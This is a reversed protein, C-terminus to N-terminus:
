GFKSGNLFLRVALAMILLKKMGRCLTVMGPMGDSKRNLHGGLRGIALAVDRVTTIPRKFLRRLIELELPELGAEEANAEPMIRFVERIHILRLAVVAMLAICGYLRHATELQLKEAGCGTKLAKHYDEVLWRTTYNQSCEFAEEFTEVPLDTLLIWELPKIGDPPNEEFIRVVNCDIGPLDGARHGPRQPSRLRIGTVSSVSLVATRAAQGKRARLDIEFKGLVPANRATEFLRGARQGTQTGAQAQRHTARLCAALMAAPM